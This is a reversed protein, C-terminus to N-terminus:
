TQCKTSMYLMIAHNPVGHALIVGTVGWFNLDLGLYMSIVSDATHLTLNDQKFKAWSVRQTTKQNPVDM